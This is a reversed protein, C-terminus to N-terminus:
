RIDASDRVRAVIPVIGVSAAVTEIVQSLSVYGAFEPDLIVQARAVRPAVQKLIELWKGGLEPEFSALGTINGGPKALSAVFGSGVPDAVQVFVIPISQTEKRLESTVQPSNAVIVEMKMAVLEAAYAQMRNRDGASWRWDVRLDQGIRWGSSRLGEEFAAVRPRAQPDDEAISMLVGIRREGQPQARASIPPALVTAVALGLFDRRKM